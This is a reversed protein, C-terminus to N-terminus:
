AGSIKDLYMRAQAAAGEFDSSLFLADRIKELEDVTEAKWKKEKLQDLLLYATEDNYDACASEVLKLQGALYALDETVNESDEKNKEPRPIREILAILMEIFREVNAFIFDENGALGAQELALALESTRHESVNALASKMAHITTTFLKMDRNKITERLTIVAKEADRRFIALLKPNMVQESGGSVQEAAKREEEPHRDRVFKNLVANLQRLDIPKSIFGDFGHQKFMEDNGTLANATLAIIIGQYGLARIKETTEIGDMQPMMHDMFIIDYIEGQEVMELAQFGSNATEAKLKYPALLGCAVYLNTDVDDVVLVKGYPMLSRNFQQSRLKHKETIYSFNNLREAIQRGIKECAVAEQRVEVLFVTGKGYESEAHVTGDMMAVLRQTINLGLGTGEVTRNSATNFRIYESFLKEQDEYTMGQGSDEIVFFLVMQGDREAHSVALKVYGKETYKIANSLLNNLVQKLRIEDGILRSPLNEDINLIFKIQKSGIRVINLQVTDHILSPVDYEVPNIELKGTEIKSMDLIDNIIGLLSAGSNYIKSLAEAYEDPLDERQLGIQAIGIIANMPTRIEHSMAALFNSKAKNATEAKDLADKLQVNTDLVKKAMENRTIANIFLMSVTRLLNEENESFLREQKCDDFGVFGWFYDNLYIPTVLLSLIGQPELAEKESDSLNRVYDNLCYGRLFRREWEPMVDRYCAEIALESGELPEAGESWEYLQTCYLLGDKSYNKWIYMRDADVAEGLVKMSQWLDKDFTEVDSLFLKISLDNVKSLKALFDIKNQDMAETKQNSELLSLHHGSMVELLNNLEKALTAWGGEFKGADIKKSLDGRSASVALLDIEGNLRVLVAQANKVNEALQSIEDHSNFDPINMDMDGSAIKQSAASIFALPKAIYSRTFAIAAVVSIFVFVAIIIIINKRVVTLEDIIENLPLDFGVIAIAKGSDDVIPAYGSVFDGYDPVSYPESYTHVGNTHSRIAADNWAELPYLFGLDEHYSGDANQAYVILFHPERMSMVYTFAINPMRVGTEIVMKKIFQYYEDEEETEIITKLSQWDIASALSAAMMKATTGKSHFSDSEVRQYIFVGVFVSCIVVMLVVLLTIKYSIKFLRGAKNM